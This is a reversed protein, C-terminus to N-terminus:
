QSTLLPLSPLLLLRSNNVGLAALRPQRHPLAPHHNFRRKRLPPVQLLLPLPRHRQQLQSLLCTVDCPPLPWQLLGIVSDTWEGMNQVRLPARLVWVYLHFIWMFFFFSLEVVYKRWALVIFWFWLETNTDANVCLTSMWVSFFFSLLKDKFLVPISLLSLCASGATGCGTVIYVGVWRAEYNLQCLKMQSLARRGNNPWNRAFRVFEASTLSDNHNVTQNSMKM